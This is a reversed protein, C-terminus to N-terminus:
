LQRVPLTFAVTNVVGLRQTQIWIRYTAECPFFLNFQLDAGGASVPHDHLMEVSDNSVALLHAWAGLYRELGYAPSRVFLMTKRDAVPQAPETRLEMRINQAEKPSLDPQLVAPTLPATYGATSFTHVPLQPTAGEPDVDALLRYTGPPLQTRLQFWGDNRLQPHQHAFYTLDQSVLFLHFLKEHVTQFRRVPQNTVPNVIRFYLTVEQNPPLHPPTARFQLHYQVPEPAGAVLTMGCRPCQGPRTSRIEPDMPCVYVPAQAFAGAACLFFSRRLM